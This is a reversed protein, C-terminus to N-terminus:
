RHLLVVDSNIEGHTLLIRRGDQSWIFDFIRGSTFRTLQRRGGGDLPQEWINDSGNQNLIYDLSRGDPSLCPSGTAYVGGPSDVLRLGPGGDAPILAFKIKPVPIFEEYPYALTKGDQSFSMRGVIDDGLVRAIEVPKGGRIPVRWIIQRPHFEVYYLYMGDPSCAPLLLDGAALSVPDSGNANFRLFETADTRYASAVIFPGCSIPTGLADQETFAERNHGDPSFIWLRGASNAILKGNSNEALERLQLPLSTIQRPHWEDKADTVWLNATGTHAIAALTHGDASLDIRESYDFLDNSIRRLQAQPYSLAWVQGRDQRDVLVLLIQNGAPLWMARGIPWTSSLLTSLRGSAMDMTHLVYRPGQGFHMLPVAITRGDPSWTAGLQYGAFTDPVTALLRDASGDADAIRLETTNHAPVGRTYVFRRDDPSFSVPSDIDKVLLHPIGGGTPIAYLNKIGPDSAVRSVFYLVDEGPSFSLGVYGMAETPPLLQTDKGSALTRVWIGVGQPERQTWALYRGDRSIAVNEVRGNDTIQEVTFNDFRLAGTPPARLHAMLVGTMIVVAAIGIVSFMVALRRHPPMPRARSLRHRTPRLKELLQIIEGVSQFRDEPQKQLTTNIVAALEEPLAPNLTGPPPPSHKVIADHILEPTAGRFPQLGTSMEYLVIGFSFLDSRADLQEGRVQEPSMYSATGMTAGTMTLSTSRLDAPNSANEVEGHAAGAEVPKALGFDLLKIEGRVTLFINAPKIDRHIFGQRHAADLGNLIAISINLLETLTFASKGPLASEIRQRLTQGQLLPMVLFPHGAHEAVEHITCINPHDLASLTRAEREFRELAHRDSSFEEGLFKLAVHRGLKLDEAKYVVGMGGGGLVELLRYHSVKKGILGATDQNAALQIAPLAATAAPRESWIVPVMWRYGKRALTEIFVPQDASDGLVLRVRNVAANISHEFEVITNNPWLNRRLEKRLIVERPQELLAVLIRFPQESLRVVAGGHRQLEASRLDLEFDGFRAVRRSLSSEPM